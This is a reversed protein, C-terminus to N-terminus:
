TIVQAIESELAAFIGGFGLIVRGRNKFNKRNHNAISEAKRPLLFEIIHMHLGPQFPKEGIQALGPGGFKVSGYRLKASCKQL